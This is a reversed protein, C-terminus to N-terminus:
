FYYDALSDELEFLYADPFIKYAHEMVIELLEMRVAKNLLHESLYDTLKPAAKKFELETLIAKKVTIKFDTTDAFFEPTEGYIWEWNQLASLYEDNHFENKGLVVKQGYFNEFSEMLHAGLKQFHIKDNLECLNVVTSRNSHIGKGELKKLPSDLLYNLHELNSKMLLTGHHFSRDKKQKFASGSFKRGDELILDSRNSAKASIGLSELAKLIIANNDDKGHDRSGHIFSFCMNGLDHYVCGGGSQRRVLQVQGLEKLNVERWPNQFRGLVICPENQYLLLIKEDAEISKLLQDEFALNMYPNRWPSIYLKLKFDM